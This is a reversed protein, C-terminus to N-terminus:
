RLSREDAIKVALSLPKPLDVAWQLHMLWASDRAQHQVWGRLVEYAKQSGWPVGAFLDDEDLLELVEVPVQRARLCEGLPCAPIQESAPLYRGTLYVREPFQAALRRVDAILEDETVPQWQPPPAIYTDTM